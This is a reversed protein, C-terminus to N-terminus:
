TPQSLDLYNCQFRLQMCYVCSYFARRLAAKTFYLRTIKRISDRTKRDHHTSFFRQRNTTLRCKKPLFMWDSASPQRPPTPSSHSHSGRPFRVLLSHTHSHTHTLTHTHTHTIPLSLFPLSWILRYKRFKIDWYGLIYHLRPGWEGLSSM